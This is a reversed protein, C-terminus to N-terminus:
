IKRKNIPAFEGSKGKVITTSEARAIAAYATSKKCGYQDCIEALLEKRPLPVDRVIEAVAEPTLAAKSAVGGNLSAEWELLNFDADIEYLMTHENLIAGIPAFDSGNSNKGCAVVIKHGNLPDGPAVNLGGRAWSHLSKSGRGYNIRDFGVAKGVGKKGTQAHHVLVVAADPKGLRAMMTAERCTDQMGGDSNLCGKAFSSLPDYVVVQPQRKKILRAIAAKNELDSFHLREDLDHELTHLTIQDCVKKWERRGMTKKM